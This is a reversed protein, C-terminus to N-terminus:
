TGSTKNEPREGRWSEAQMLATLLAPTKTINNTPRKEAEVLDGTVSTYVESGDSISTNKHM